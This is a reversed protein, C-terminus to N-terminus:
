SNYNFGGFSDFQNLSDSQTRRDEWKQRKTVQKWINRQVRKYRPIAEKLRLFLKTDDADGGMKVSFFQMQNVHALFTDLIEDYESIMNHPRIPFSTGCITCKWNMPNAPDLEVSPVTEGKRMTWHVCSRKVKKIQKKKGSKFKYRNGKRKILDAIGEILRRTEKEVKKSKKNAM